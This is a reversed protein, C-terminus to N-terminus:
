RWTYPTDGLPDINKIANFDKNSNWWEKYAQSAAQHATKENIQGNGSIRFILIPNLTPFRFFDEDGSVSCKRVSEITWLVYVGLRCDGSSLSSVPNVPYHKLIQNEDAYKLLEPIDDPDFPPLEIFQYSESKLLSIYKKVSMTELSIKECGSLFLAIIFLIAARSKM